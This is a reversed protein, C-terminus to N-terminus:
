EEGPVRRQAFRAGYAKSVLKNALDGEIPGVGVGPMPGAEDASGGASSVNAGGASATEPGSPGAIMGTVMMVAMQIQASLMDLAGQDMADDQLEEFIEELKERPFEEGLLRLAGEKSELGLGMKAQVENLKILQDVPLPEPWHVTTKYINPDSPDLETLQDREPMASM